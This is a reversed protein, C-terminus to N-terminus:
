ISPFNQSRLNARLNAKTLISGVTTNSEILWLWVADLLAGDCAVDWGCMCQLYDYSRSCQGYQEAHWGSCLVLGVWANFVSPPSSRRLKGRGFNFCQCHQIRWRESNRYGSHIHTHPTHPTGCLASPQQTACSTDLAKDNTSGAQPRQDLKNINM